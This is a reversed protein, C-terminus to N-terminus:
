TTGRCLLDALADGIRQGTQDEYFNFAPSTNVEFCYYEGELTRRLDIGALSLGLGETLTVCKEQLDVPLEIGRIARFSEAESYRYDTASTEIQSAFVRKGVVHVRIDIGPIYKQFQVPCHRIHDLRSFDEPNLRHVVSRVSSISKYIVRKQCMEFFNKADDPISTVLTDPVKFGSKSILMGQYPKSANTTAAELPNVVLGPLMNILNLYVSHHHWTKEGSDTAESSPPALSRFFRIYTSRIATLPITRTGVQLVALSHDDGVSLAIPLEKRPQQFDILVLTVNRGALKACMRALVPEEIPGILLIYPLDTM